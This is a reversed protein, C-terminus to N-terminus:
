RHSIPSRLPVLLSIPLAGHNQLVQTDTRQLPFRAAMSLPSQRNQGPSALLRNAWRLCGVNELASLPSVGRGVGVANRRTYELRMTLFQWNWTSHLVQRSLSNVAEMYIRSSPQEEYTGHHLFAACIISSDQLIVDREHYNHVVCM